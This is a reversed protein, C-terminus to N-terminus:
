VAKGPDLWVGAERDFRREYVARDRLEVKRVKGNGTRPLSEVPEIYRPVYQRPLRDILLVAHIGHIGRGHECEILRVQRLERLTIPM